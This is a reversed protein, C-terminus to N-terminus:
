SGFKTQKSAVPKSGCVPSGSNVGSAAPAEADNSTSRLTKLPACVWRAVTVADLASGFLTFLLALAFSALITGARVPLLITQSASPNGLQM